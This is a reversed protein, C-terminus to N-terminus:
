WPWGRRANDVIMVALGYIMILNAYFWVIVVVPHVVQLHASLQLYGFVCAVGAVLMGVIARGPVMMRRIPGAVFRYLSYCAVCIGLIPLVHHLESMGKM